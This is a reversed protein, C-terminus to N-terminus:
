KKAWEPIAKIDSVDFAEGAVKHAGHKAVFADLRDQRRGVAIVFIGADIMREALAQGIGATAGTILVTKYPFPM